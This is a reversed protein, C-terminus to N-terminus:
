NRASRVLITVQVGCLRALEYDSLLAKALIKGLLGFSWGLVPM